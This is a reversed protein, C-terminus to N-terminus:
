FIWTFVAASTVSSLLTCLSLNQNKTATSSTGMSPTSPPLGRPSNSLFKSPVSSASSTNSRTSSPAHSQPLTSNPLAPPHSIPVFSALTHPTTSPASIPLTFPPGTTNVTSTPQGPTHVTTTPQGTVLVSTPQGPTHVTSTPQASTLVTTNPTPKQAARTPKQTPIVVTPGKTGNIATPQQVLAPNPAGTKPTVFAASTTFGSYYYFSGSVNNQLVVTVDMTINSLPQDFRVTGTATSKLDHNTHTVGKVPATCVAAVQTNTGPVLNNTVDVNGASMRFLVGKFETGSVALVTDVGVPIPKAQEIPVGGLTVVLGVDSLPGTKVVSRTLHLSGVAATGGACGGAGTSFATAIPAALLLSLIVASIKM